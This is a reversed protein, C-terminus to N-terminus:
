LDSFAMLVSEGSTGVGSVNVPFGAGSFVIDLRNAVATVGTITASYQGGNLIIGFDTTSLTPTIRMKTPVSIYGVGVTSSFAYGQWFAYSGLNLFYRHCKMLEVGYDMPPDYALTSITGIELKVGTVNSIATPALGVHMYGAAYGLTATGWGAITVSATGTNAPFTGTGRYVAGGVMVSVTVTEGALLNGEIRQEIGAAAGITLYAANATVTGSNRVWRDYFYGGTSIAGTVARQNVPNRFDPNHLINSHGYLSPASLPWAVEMMGPTEGYKGIGGGLAKDLIHLGVVDTPITATYAYTNILDQVIIEAMYTKVHLLLGGGLISATNSVMTEPTGPTGGKMYVRGALAASNQGGISAIAPTAKLLVYAGRRDATGNVDCRFASIDTLSPMNYADVTITVTASATRGRSDTVTATFTLNGSTGFTGVTGSAANVTFGGGTIKYSTIWSGYAGAAGTIELLCKSYNQVYRTISADVGNSVLTATVGTLTPVVSAPVYIYLDLYKTVGIQTTGSFTQLWAGGLGVAANPIQALWSMPITFTASNEATDVTYSETGLWVAFRHWYGSSKPSITAIVDYGANLHQSNLSLGSEPAPPDPPSAPDTYTVRVYIGTRQCLGTKDLYNINNPAPATPYSGGTSSKWYFSINSPNVSAGSAPTHTGGYLGTDVNFYVNYATITAGAPIGSITVGKAQTNESPTTYGQYTTGGYNRGTYSKFYSAQNFDAIGFDMYPM